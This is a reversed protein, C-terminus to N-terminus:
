WYSEFLAEVVDPEVTQRPTLATLLNKKESAYIAIWEPDPSRDEREKARAYAIIWAELAHDSEGPIPNTSAATLAGIVATYSLRLLLATSIKPAIEITPAATPSGAGLVAFYIERGSPDVTGLSRAGTFDAHNISRPAFTVNRATNTTTLDRPEIVEVRFVDTPVGTLTQTSAALSVNTVDQTVFHGQNLDIVAKWLDKIGSIAHILLEADTWYAATAEVL